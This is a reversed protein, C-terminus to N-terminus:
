NNGTSKGKRCLELVRKLAIDPNKANILWMAQTHSDMVFYLEDEIYYWSYRENEPYPRSYINSEFITHLAKDIEQM